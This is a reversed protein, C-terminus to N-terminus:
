DACRTSHTAAEIWTNSWASVWLTSRPVCSRVCRRLLRWRRDTQHACSRTPFEDPRFCDMDLHLYVNGCLGPRPRPNCDGASRHVGRAAHNGIGAQRIDVLEEPDLDRTGALFIQEPKLTRRFKAVYELPGEGLLTRLVMGHFHGSPSTAPANLDGHADVALDGAYRENLYAVPAAEVGCTGGVTVM